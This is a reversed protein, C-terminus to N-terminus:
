AATGRVGPSPRRGRCSRADGVRGRARAPRQERVRQAHEVRQGRRGAHGRQEGRHLLRLGLARRLEELPEAGRGVDGRHVVVAPRARHRARVALAAALDHGARAHVEVVHHALLVERGEAEEGMRRPAPQRRHHRRRHDRPASPGVSDSPEAPEFRIREAIRWTTIPTSSRPSSTCAAISAGRSCTSSSCRRGRAPHRRSRARPGCARGSGPASGRRRRRGPPRARPRRAARRRRSGGRRRRRRRRLGRSRMSEAEPRSRCGSSPARRPGARSCRGCRSCGSTAGPSRAARRCGRTSCRTPSTCWRSPRRSRGAALGAAPLRPLLHRLDAPAPADRAAAAAAGGRAHDGAVRRPLRGLRLLALRRRGRAARRRRRRARAPLRLGLRGGGDDRACAVVSSLMAALARSAVLVWAPCPTSRRRKLVGLQRQTVVTMTLGMFSSTLVALGLIGPVSARDAPVMEGAVEVPTADFLGAFCVLLVLPLALGFLQMRRNRRLALLDFRLQHALLATM